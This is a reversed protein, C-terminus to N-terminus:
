LLANVVEKVNANTRDFFDILADLDSPTPSFWEGRLRCHAMRDHLITEIKAPRPTRISLWLSLDLPCGSQINILRQKFSASKGIKIYEFDPAAVVYVMPLKRIRVGKSFDNPSHEYYNM